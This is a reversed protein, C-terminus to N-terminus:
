EEMSIARELVDKRCFVPAEHVLALTIADSPRTDIELIQKQDGMQMELFLRAFYITDQVDTIVVQLVKIEFGKFVAHILDHTFPRVKAEETLYMQINKGVNPDAYIAFSKQPTGLIIVTYSRSQLIKNFTIPILEM